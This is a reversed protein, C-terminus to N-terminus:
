QRLEVYFHYQVEAITGLTSLILATKSKQVAVWADRSPGETLVEFFHLDPRKPFALPPNKNYKVEIGPIVGTLVHELQERSILKVGSAVLQTVEEAPRAMEVGMYFAPQFRAWDEPITCEFFGDRMPDPEFAARDYPVAVDAALLKRISEIAFSFSEGPQGHDYIPINPVNRDAGFVALNGVSQVLWMFVEFPHLDPQNALQEINAVSRNVAQLKVFGALDAGKGASSLAATAPIHAALDRAHARATDSIEKLAGVLVESAGCALLPPIYSESLCSVAEPQGRRVIKAIPLSEFGARDEDGFFLRAQLHRFEVEKPADRLNEDFIERADVRYRAVRGNGEVIQPVNPRAAPIGLYVMLEAAQFHEAFERQEVTATEPFVAVTGDPFVAEAGRLDFMDRQLAEEDVDFALLGYSGPSGASSRQHIRAAVERSYAQLHQPCLFMGERWLVSPEPSSNM